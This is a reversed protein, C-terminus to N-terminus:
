CPSACRSCTRTSRIADRIRTSRRSRRSPKPAENALFGEKTDDWEEYLMIELPQELGEHLVALKLTPVRGVVLEVLNALKAIVTAKAGADPIIRFTRMFTVRRVGGPNVWRRFPRYWRLKELHGELARRYAAADDPGGIRAEYIAIGEGDIRRHISAHVLGPMARTTTDIFAKPPGTAEATLPIEGVFAFQGEVITM